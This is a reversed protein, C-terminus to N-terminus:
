IPLATRQVVKRLSFQSQLRAVHPLTTLHESHLREYDAPDKVMVRIHYDSTGALLYCAMVEPIHAVAEEFTRLCAKGQSELTVSIIVSTRLDFQNSDLHAVYAQITGAAELAKVRRHCAAQSLGVADAIDANTRNSNTQLIRLIKLDIADM